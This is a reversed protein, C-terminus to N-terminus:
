ASKYFSSSIYVVGIAACLKTDDLDNRQQLGRNTYYTQVSVSARYHQLLLLNYYLVLQERVHLLLGCQNFASNDSGCGSRIHLKLGGVVHVYICKEIKYIFNYKINRKKKLM